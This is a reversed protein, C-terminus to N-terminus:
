VLKSLRAKILSALEQESTKQISQGTKRELEFISFRIPPLLFRNREDLHAIDRLADYYARQAIRGGLYNFQEKPKIYGNGPRAYREVLERFDALSAPMRDVQVPLRHKRLMANFAALDNCLARYHNMYKAAVAPM